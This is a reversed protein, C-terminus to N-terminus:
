LTPAPATPLTTANVVTSYPSMTGRRGIARMRYYYTTGSRLAGDQYSVVGKNTTAIQLFGSSASTSREIAYGSAKPSNPDSWTLKLASTSLAMATLSPPLLAADAIAPRVALLAAVLTLYVWRRIPM